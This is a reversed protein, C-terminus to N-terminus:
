ARLADLAARLTVSVGPVVACLGTDDGGLLSLAGCDRVMRELLQEANAAVDARHQRELSSFHRSFMFVLVSAVRVAASRATDADDACAACAVWAVFLMGVDRGLLAGADCAAARLPSSRHRAV